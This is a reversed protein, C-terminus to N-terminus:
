LYVEMCLAPFNDDEKKLIPKVSWKNTCLLGHKTHKSTYRINNYTCIQVCMLIIFSKIHFSININNIKIIIITWPYLFPTVACNTILLTM